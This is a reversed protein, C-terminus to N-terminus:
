RGTVMLEKETATPRMQTYIDMTFLASASNFISTLSSMLSALLAALMLGRVGPLSPVNGPGGRNM